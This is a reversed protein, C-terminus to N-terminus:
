SLCPTSKTTCMRLKLFRNNKKMKFKMQHFPLYNFIICLVKKPVTYYYKNLRKSLLNYKTKVFLIVWAQAARLMSFKHECKIENMSDEM